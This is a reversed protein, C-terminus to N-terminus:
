PAIVRVKEGERLDGADGEMLVFADPEHPHLERLGSVTTELLASTIATVGELKKLREPSPLNWERLTHMRAELRFLARKVFVEYVTRVAKPNGPLICFTTRDRKGLAMTKGPSIAPSEVYFIGGWRKVAEKTLDKRGQSTGGTLILLDIQGLASLVTFIEEDTDDAVHFERLVGGDRQVLGTLLFRNSDVLRGQKLENGTTVVAVAPRRYVEVTKHGALSLSAMTAPDIPVGGAIVEAGKKLWDGAKVVRREDGPTEVEITNGDERASERTVFRGVLPLRGGTPIFFAKEEEIRGPPEQFPELIGEVSFSPGKGNIAYGDLASIDFPPMDSPASVSRACIRGFASDLPITETGVPKTHLDIQEWVESLTM